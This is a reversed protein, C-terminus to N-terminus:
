RISNKKDQWYILDPKLQHSNALLTKKNELKATHENKDLAVSLSLHTIINGTQSNIFEYYTKAGM